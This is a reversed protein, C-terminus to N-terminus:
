YAHEAQKERTEIWREYLLQNQYGWSIPEVVEDWREGNSPNYYSLLTKKGSKRNLMGLYNEGAKITEGDIKEIIVGAVVKGDENILPSKEIVEAIKLGDGEYTEDYFVGLAATRDNTPSSEWAFAGTHSANVEGLMESLMDAFDYRNNIYPLYPETAYCM